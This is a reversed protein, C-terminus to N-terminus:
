GLGAILTIRRRTRKNKMTSEVALGWIKGNLISFGSQNSPHYSFTDCFEDLILKKIPKRALRYRARITELYERKASNSMIMAEMIM